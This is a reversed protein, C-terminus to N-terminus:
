TAAGPVKPGVRGPQPTLRRPKGALSLVDDHHQAQRAIFAALKQLELCRRPITFAAGLTTSSAHLSTLRDPPLLAVLNPAGIDSGSSTTSFRSCRHARSISAACTSCRIMHWYRYALKLRLVSGSSPRVAPCASATSPHRSVSVPM